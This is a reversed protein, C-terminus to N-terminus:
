PNTVAIVKNSVGAQRASAKAMDAAIDIAEEVTVEGNTLAANLKPMASIVVAILPALNVPKDLVPRQKKEKSM